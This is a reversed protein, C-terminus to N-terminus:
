KKLFRSYYQNDFPSDALVVGFAQKLLKNMVAVMAKKHCKNAKRLRDYLEKCAKNHLRASRAGMYLCARLGNNGKKSMRGKKRVSSGSSHSSPVVGVFKSLQGARKFHQLGGTTSLLLHATKPGIGVVSTILNFQHEYEDDSLENLEDELKQLQIELTNKTQKLAEVVKPEFIIQHDFVHLQNVLMQKQKKLANIGVLLQKRKQMNNNPHQYLPLDLRQGMLALSYAAQRDNKSIIGLAKTFSSSQYPNVLNVAIGHQDLYHLIRYSYCGTPELICLVKKSPLQAIWELIGKTTNAIQQYKEKLNNLELLDLTDKSVDIGIISNYDKMSYFLFHFFLFDDDHCSTRDEKFQGFKFIM